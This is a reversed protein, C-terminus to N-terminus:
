IFLFFILTIPSPYIPNGVAANSAEFPKSTMPTSLLREITSSKFLYLHWMFSFPNSSSSLNDISDPFREIVDFGFTLSIKKIATGVGILLFSLNGVGLM